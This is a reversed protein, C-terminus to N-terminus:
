LGRNPGARGPGAPPLAKGEATSEESNAGSGAATAKESHIHSLSQGHHLLLGWLLWLALRACLGM